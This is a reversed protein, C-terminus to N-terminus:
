TGHPDEPAHIEDVQQTTLKGNTDFLEIDFDGGSSEFARLAVRHGVMQQARQADAPVAMYVFPTELTKSLIAVHSNPTSATLSIIGAVYPVEAPVGDTLLIDSSKLEGALFATSIEDGSYYKLTGLAWGPAYCVNGTSWRATSSVTIGKSLFFDTNAAAVESQEFTPFYFTEVGSDAIIKSKVVNFMDVIEQATYPDQRVFQIGYEQTQPPAPDGYLIPPMIVTGLIAQQGSAYLSVQDFQSTTMGMFPDLNHIAFDSHFQYTKCDQFYVTNPDDKLIVFKIWGIDSATSQVSRFADNPFSIQNKWYASPTIDAAHVSAAASVVLISFLIRMVAHKM